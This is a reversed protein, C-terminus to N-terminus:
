DYELSVGQEISSTQEMEAALRQVRDSPKYGSKGDSDPFSSYPAAHAALVGGSIAAVVSAAKGGKKPKQDEDPANAEAANSMMSQKTEHYISLAEELTNAPRFSKTTGPSGVVSYGNGMKKGGKQMRRNNMSAAYEDADVDPAPAEQPKRLSKGM